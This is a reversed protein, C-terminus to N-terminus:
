ASVRKAFRGHKRYRTLITDAVAAMPTPTIGLAALGDAGAPVITDRALMAFQDRTIPAGPLFGFAAIVAGVADPLPLLTPSRGIREAIWQQLELMSLIQPGGLAFTRGAAAPDLAAVVARAVDGVFVPQFKAEARLVPLVPAMRILGAFRNLFRDEQGFVVSPRLIVAGPFAARVAAEGKAKSRGYAGPSEPDAGIASVHVLSEAGAGAAARAINGAGAVHVVEFDGKLIGVLNIVADAGAVARAVSAPNGVDAAAFQTQGLGGLPKLFFSQSPDRSAIRVRWGADLLAQTVYRGIFGSGGFVVALRQAMVAEDGM